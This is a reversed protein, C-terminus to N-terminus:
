RRVSGTHIVDAGDSVLERAMLVDSAKIIKQIADPLRAPVDTISVIQRPEIIHLGLQQQYKAALRQIRAPQTMLAWDARLLHITDKEAEIQREIQRVEQYRKQAEYKVKYTVAAACIMLAVLIIDATRFVTM